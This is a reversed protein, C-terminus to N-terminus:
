SVRRPVIGEVLSMQAFYAKSGANASTDCLAFARATTPAATFTFSM